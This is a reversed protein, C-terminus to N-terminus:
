KSKTKSQQKQITKSPMRNIEYGHNISFFSLSLDKAPPGYRPTHPSKGKKLGGGSKKNNTKKPAAKRAKKASNM